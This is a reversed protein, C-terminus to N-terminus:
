RSSWGRSDKVNDRTILKPELLVMPEAPKKGGLVENGVELAKLAM